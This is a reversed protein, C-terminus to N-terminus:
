SAASSPEPCSNTLWISLPGIHKEFFVMSGRVDRARLTALLETHGAITGQTAGADALNHQLMLLRIQSRLNLWCTLLRGHNAARVLIEHYKLDCIALQDPTRAKKTAQVSEALQDWDHEAANEIALRLALSELSWRLTCIEERDKPTLLSVIGGRSATRLVLGEHELQALAERVPARSVKLSGALRAEALRQGPKFAGRFIADRLSATVSEALTQRVAPQLPIDLIEPM